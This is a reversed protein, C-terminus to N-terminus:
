RGDNGNKRVGSSCYDNDAVLCGQRGHPCTCILKRPVDSTFECDKCRVVQEPRHELIYMVRGMLAKQADSRAMKKAVIAMSELLADADILRM